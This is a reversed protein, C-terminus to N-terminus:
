VFYLNKEISEFQKLLIEFEVARKADFSRLEEVLIERDKVLKRKNKDFRSQSIDMEM